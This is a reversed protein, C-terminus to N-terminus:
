LWRRGGKSGEWVKMMGNKGLARPVAASQYKLWVGVLHVGLETTGDQIKLGTHQIGQKLIRSRVRVHERQIEWEEM